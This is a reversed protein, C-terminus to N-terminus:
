SSEGRFNHKRQFQSFTSWFICSLRHTDFFMERLTLFGKLSLSTTSSIVSM